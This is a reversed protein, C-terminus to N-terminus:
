GVMHLWSGLVRGGGRGREREREREIRRTVLSSGPLPGVELSAAEGKVEAVTQVGPLVDGPETEIEQLM